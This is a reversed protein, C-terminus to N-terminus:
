PVTVTMTRFSKRRPDRLDKTQCYGDNFTGPQCEDPSNVAVKLSGDDSLLNMQSGDPSLLLAEPAFGRAQDLASTPGVLTQPADNPDGTWSFIAFGQKGDHPGAILLFDGRRQSYALDRVGLDQGRRGLTGAFDLLIPQDFRATAEQTVVEMPNLMRILVAKGEPRPNRLGILLSGDPAAALGEINFGERKPALRKVKDDDLKMSEALGIRQLQPDAAMDVALRRYTRGVKKFVFRDGEKAVRVAFFQHRSPRLEGSRSRGHSTIWFILDKVQAAGEIDGETEGDTPRDGGPSGADWKIRQLPTRDQGQRFLFFHNTEDDAVVFQENDLAVGASADCMGWYRVFADQSEQAANSGSLALVAPLAVALVVFIAPRRQFSRM